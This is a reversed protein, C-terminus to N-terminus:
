EDVEDDDEEDMADLAAEEAEHIADQVADAKLPDSIEAEDNEDPLISEVISDALAHPNASEAAVAKGTVILKTPSLYQELMKMAEETEPSMVANIYDLDRLDNDLSSLLKSLLLGHQGKITYNGHILSATILKVPM